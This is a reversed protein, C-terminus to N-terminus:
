RVRGSRIGLDVTLGRLEEVLQPMEVTGYRELLDKTEQNIVSTKTFLNRLNSTMSDVTEPSDAVVADGQEGSSPITQIVNSTDEAAAAEGGSHSDGLRVRTIGGSSSAEVPDSDSDLQSLAIGCTDCYQSGISYSKQCQPCVLTSPNGYIPRSSIGVSNDSRQDTNLIDRVQGLPDSGVTPTASESVNSQNSIKRRLWRKMPEIFFSDAM